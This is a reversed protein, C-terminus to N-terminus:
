SDAQGGTGSSAQNNFTLTCTGVHDTPVRGTGAKYFVQINYSTINSYSTTYTFSAIYATNMIPDIYASNNVKMKLTDYRFGSNINWNYSLNIICGYESSGGTSASTGKDNGNESEGSGTTSGTTDLTGKTGNEYEVDIIESKDSM